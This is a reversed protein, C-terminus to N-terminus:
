DAHQAGPLPAIGSATVRGVMYQLSSPHASMVRLLVAGSRPHTVAWRALRNIWLRRRYLAAHAAPYQELSGALIHAAALSASQLAYYIGEGTFPEVVRAADGVYLVGDRLPGIPARELPAVARWEQAPLIAFRACVAAKLADLRHPKAVLCFNTLGKGV